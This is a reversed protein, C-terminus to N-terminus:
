FRRSVNAMLPKKMPLTLSTQFEPPSKQGPVLEFKFEKLMMTMLIVVEITAFQQGLCTRPGAHFSNFKYQNQPRLLDEEDLFRQPEFVQADEGWINKDRGMAWPVWIVFENAYVPVRNPLINDKVCVKLNKPVSPYLRLTESFTAKTYKFQQKVDDYPPIQTNPLLISNIENLLSDEVSPNTMISYMMWSLAQATTDRGAIILNLTVDRLWKDDLKEEGEERDEDAAKIFLTLLDNPPKKGNKIDARRSTIMNYVYNDLVECSNRIQRGREDYLEIFKWLPQELRWDVIRQTIDFDIAFQVPEEPSTLCSFDTNFFVDGLTDLTFRYFLDQLDIPRGNDACRRLINLVTESEKVIKAYIFDKYNREQFLRSITRRQLKWQDGDAGFIGDGFLDYLLEHLIEGKEFSFFETKLTYELLQPDNIMIFRGKVPLTFTFCTGYKDLLDLLYYMFGRSRLLAVFNGLIPFGRPGKLEPRTKTGIARDPYKIAFYIIYSVLTLLIVVFINIIM